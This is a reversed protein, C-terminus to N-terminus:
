EIKIRYQLAEALHEPLISGSDSLDAITRAIKLLRFYSRSSLNLKIVAAKLLEKSKKDLGCFIRTQESTMESNTSFLENKFRNIQVLRAKEVRIKVLASSEIAPSCNLEDFSVRPVYVHLDIRDVIPGSLRRKYNFIQKETCRCHIQKDGLYGCPCPNM